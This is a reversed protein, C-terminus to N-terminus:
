VRKRSLVTVMLAGDVCKGSKNRAARCGMDALMKPDVEVRYRVEEQGDDVYRPWSHRGDPSTDVGEKRQLKRVVMSELVLLTNEMTVVEEM